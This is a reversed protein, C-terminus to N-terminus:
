VNERLSIVLFQLPKDNSPSKFNKGLLTTTDVGQTEKASAVKVGLLAVTGFLAVGTWIAHILSFVQLYM